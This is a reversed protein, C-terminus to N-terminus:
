YKGIIKIRASEGKTCKFYIKEIKATKFDIELDEDNGVPVFELSKDNTQVYVTNPGYNHLAGSFWTKPPEWEILETVTLEKHGLLGKPHEATIANEIRLLREVSEDLLSAIDYLMTLQLIQAVYPRNKVIDELQTEEPKKFNLRVKSAM